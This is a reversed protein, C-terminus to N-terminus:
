PAELSRTRGDSVVRRLAAFAERITDPLRDPTQHGRTFGVKFAAVGAEALVEADGDPLVATLEAAVARGLRDMKLLERERLSEDADVVRQREAVFAGREAFGAAAAIFAAELASSPSRISLGARVDAVISEVFADQGFFLVEKKDAFYRFFTRETLGAAAAIEAATTREFGREAFLELAAAALRDATGPQWRGM